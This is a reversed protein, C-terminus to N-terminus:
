ALLWEINIHVCRSDFLEMWHKSEWEKYLKPTLGGIETGAKRAADMDTRLSALDGDGEGGTFVEFNHIANYSRVSRDWLGCIANASHQGNFLDKSAQVCHVDAVSQAVVSVCM